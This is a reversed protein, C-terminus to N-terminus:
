SGAESDAAEVTASVAATLADNDKVAPLMMANRTFADLDKSGAWLKTLTSVTAPEAGAATWPETQEPTLTGLGSSRAETPNRTSVVGSIKSLDVVGDESYGMYRVPVPKPNAPKPNQKSPFGVGRFEFILGDWVTADRLSTVKHQRHIDQVGRLDVAPLDGDGDLVVAGEYESNQGSILYVFRMLATNGHFKKKFSETDDDHEVLAPEDISQRWGNGIGYNVLISEVPTGSSEYNAQLIDLVDTQWFLMTNHAFDQSAKGQTEAFLNSWFGTKVRGIFHTLLGSSDDGKYLDDTM